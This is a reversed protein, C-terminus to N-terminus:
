TRNQWCLEEIKIWKFKLRWQSLKAWIWSKVRSLWRCNKTIEFVNINLALFKLQLKLVNQIMWHSQIFLILLNSETDQNKTHLFFSFRVSEIGKNLQQCDLCMNQYCVLLIKRKEKKEKRTFLTISGLMSKKLYLPSVMSIFCFFCKYDKNSSM